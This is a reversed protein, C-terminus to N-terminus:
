QGAVEKLLAEIEGLSNRLQSYDQIVYYENQIVDNGFDHLMVENVTFDKKVPQNSLANLLEGKSSIIGAGYIKTEGEEYILGFEITFWYLREIMQIAKENGQYQKALSGISQFFTCYDVNTILPAHGFVDHFMDPEEIYDLESMKRLWCTATFTKESLLEFFENPPCLCPVTRLKWGTLAQLVANTKEFDPIVQASFKIENVAKLYDGCGHKSLLDMQRNYLLEWVAFDESTYNSYVQQLPKIRNESPTM